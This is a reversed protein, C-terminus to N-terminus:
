AAPRAPPAAAPSIKHLAALTKQFNALLGDGGAADPSPNAHPPRAPKASPPHAQGTPTPKPKVPDPHPPEPKATPKPNQDKASEPQETDQGALPRKQQLRLERMTGLLARNLALLGARARHKQPATEAHFVEHTADLILAMQGYILTALMLEAGDRPEFGLATHVMQRTRAEADPRTEGPRDCLARTAQALFNQALDAPFPHCATM